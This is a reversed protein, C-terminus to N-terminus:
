SECSLCAGSRARTKSGADASRCSLFTSELDASVLVGTFQTVEFETSFASVTTSGVGSETDLLSSGVVEDLAVRRVVIVGKTEGITGISSEVVLGLQFGTDLSQVWCVAGAVTVSSVATGGRHVDKVVYVESNVTIVGFDLGNGSVLVKTKVHVFRLEEVREIVPESSTGVLNSQQVRFVIVEALIEEVEAVNMLKHGTTNLKNVVVANRQVRDVLGFDWVVVLYWTSIVLATTGKAKFVELKRVLLTGLLKDAVLRFTSNALEGLTNIGHVTSHKSAHGGVDVGVVSNAQEVVLHNRVVLIGDVHAFSEQNGSFGIAGIELIFIIGGADGVNDALLDNVHLVGLDLGHSSNKILKVAVLGIVTDDLDFFGVNKSLTFIIGIELELALIATVTSPHLFL